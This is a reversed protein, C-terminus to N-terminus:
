RRSPIGVSVGLQWIVFDTKTRAAFLFISKM